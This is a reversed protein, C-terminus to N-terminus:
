IDGPGDNLPHVWSDFIWMRGEWGMQPCLRAPVMGPCQLPSSIVPPPPDWGNPV